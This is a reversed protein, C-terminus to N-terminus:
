GETPYFFEERVIKDDKVTYLAAEEMQMRNGTPKDTIDMKFGVIFHDGNPWPGTVSASHIEHNAYWWELKAKMAALGKIERGTGPMDMAEVSVADPAYLTQQAELDKGQRCLNVLKTAVEMTSM